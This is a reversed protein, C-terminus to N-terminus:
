SRESLLLESLRVEKLSALKKVGKSNVFVDILGHKSLRKLINKKISFFKGHRSNIFNLITM